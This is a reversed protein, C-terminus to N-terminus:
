RWVKGKSERAGSKTSFEYWHCPLTNGAVEITEDGENVIKFKDAAEKAKIEQKQVPVPIEQAGVKSKGCVEIVVKDDKVELLKYLMESQMKRGGAEMEMKM